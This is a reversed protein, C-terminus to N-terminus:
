GILKNHIVVILTVMLLLEATIYKTFHASFGNIFGDYIYEYTNLMLRKIGMRNYLSLVFIVSALCLLFYSYTKLYGTKDSAWILRYVILSAFAPIGALCLIFLNYVIKEFENKKHITIVALMIFFYSTLILSLTPLVPKIQSSAYKYWASYASIATDFFLIVIIISKFGYHKM